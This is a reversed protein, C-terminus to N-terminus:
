GTTADRAKAAVAMTTLKHAASLRAHLRRMFDTLLPRDDANVGEWDIHIGDYGKTLVLNVLADVIRDQEEPTDILDHFADYTPHNKIMPLIRVGRSRLFATTEPQEDRADITGDWKLAYYFPSVHTLNDVNARLSTLSDAAYTVYYGWRITAAAEARPAPPALPVALAVLLIALALRPLRFARARM